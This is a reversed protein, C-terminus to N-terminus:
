SGTAFIRAMLAPILGNTTFEQKLKTGAGDPEFAAANEGRLLRNGFRTRFYRGPTVELVETPSAMSGFWTTYRTGPETLPGTVDSVRTAGGVWEKMRELNTWLAFTAEPSADVHVTFTYRGM